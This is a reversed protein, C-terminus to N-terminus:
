VPAGPCRAGGPASCRAVRGWVPPTPPPPPPPRPPPLPGWLPGVPPRGSRFPPPPGAGPPSVRLIRVEFAGGRRARRAGGAPLGAGAVPRGLPRLRRLDGLRGGALRRRAARRRRAGGCRRRRLAARRATRSRAVPRLRAASRAGLDARRGDRRRRRRRHRPTVRRLRPGAELEAGGGRPRHLREEGPARLAGDGGRVARLDAPARRVLDALEEGAADLPAGAHRFRRHRVGRGGGQGGYLTRLYAPEVWIEYGLDGTYSIRNVMAPVGGVDMARFDMFRFAANSVDDDTLRALVARSRPGAMCLGMLQM